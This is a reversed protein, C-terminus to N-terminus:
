VNRYSLFAGAGESLRGKGKMGEVNLDPGQNSIKGNDEGDQEETSYIGTKLQLSGLQMYGTYNLNPHGRPNQIEQRRHGKKEM